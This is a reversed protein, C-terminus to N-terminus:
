GGSERLVQQKLMVPDKAAVVEQKCTKTSDSCAHHIHRPLCRRAIMESRLIHRVDTPFYPLYNPGPM